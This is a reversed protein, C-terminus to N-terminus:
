LFELLSFLGSALVVFVAKVQGVRGSQLDPNKRRALLSAAVGNKSRGIWYGLLMGLLAGFWVQYPYHADIEVRSWGVAIAVGFWPIAMQPNIEWILWALGFAFATHASPFGPSLAEGPVPIGHKMHPPRPLGIAYKMLNTLVLTLIILEVAHRMTALSRRKWTMTLLIVLSVGIYYKYIPGSFAHGVSRGDLHNSDTCALVLIVGSLLPLWYRRLFAVSRSTKDM